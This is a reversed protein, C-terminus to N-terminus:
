LVVKYVYMFFCYLFRYFILLFGLLVPIPKCYYEHQVLDHFINHNDM